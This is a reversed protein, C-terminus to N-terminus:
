KNVVKSLIFRAKWFTTKAPILCELKSGYYELDYKEFAPASLDGAAIRVTRYPVEM